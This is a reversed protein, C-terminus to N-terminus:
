VEYIRRGNLTVGITQLCLQWFRPSCFSAVYIWNKFESQVRLFLNSNGKLTTIVLLQLSALAGRDLAYARCGSAMQLKYENQVQLM